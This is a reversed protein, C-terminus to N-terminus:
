RKYTIIIDGTSTTIKCVGGDRTDHVEVEGTSTKTIFFKSTKISGRVDGTSTEITINNADFNDLKVDGSTTVLSMDGVVNVESLVVDGTSGTIDLTNCKLNNLKISGTTTRVNVTESVNSDTVDVSGTSCELSLTDCEMSSIKTDGTSLKINVDDFKFGEQICVDGTSGTINLDSDIKSNIYITVNNDNFNMIYDYWKYNKEQTITLIDNEFEVKIKTNSNEKVVVKSVNESYIINIDTVDVNINIDDINNNLEYTKEEVENTTVNIISGVLGIVLAVVFIGLLGLSAIKGKGISVFVGLIIPLSLCSSAIVLGLGLNYEKYIYIFVLLLIVLVLTVFSYSLLFFRSLRNYKDENMYRKQRVFVVPYCILFYGLLTGIGAIMFWHNNTYISVTLFLLFLSLFTSGIFVILKKGSFFRTITPIFTYGCVISALVIWFWSLTKATALDVIFCVVIATAYLINFTWFIGNKTKNYSEADKKMKRYNSDYSSQILETESVELVKCIDPILTIDPFSVGREWKSIASVDLYLLDALQKQTLNKNKRAEKIFLGFKSKDM